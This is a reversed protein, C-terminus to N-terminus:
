DLQVIGCSQRPPGGNDHGCEGQPGKYSQGQSHVLRLVHCLKLFYRRDIQRFYALLQFLFRRNCDPLEIPRLVLSPLRESCRYSHHWTRLWGELWKSHMKWSRTCYEFNITFSFQWGALDITMRNPWIGSHIMWDTVILFRTLRRGLGSFIVAWIAYVSSVTPPKRQIGLKVCTSAENIIGMASPTTLRDIMSHWVLILLLAGPLNCFIVVFKKRPKLTRITGTAQVTGETPRYIAFIRLLNGLM